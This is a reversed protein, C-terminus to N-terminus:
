QSYDWSTRVTSTNWALDTVTWEIYVYTSPSQWAPWTITITATTWSVNTVSVSWWQVSNDWSDKISINTFSEINKSFTMTNWTITAWRAMPSINEWARSATVTDITFNTSSDPGTGSANKARVSFTAWTVDGLWTATYTAVNGIDTRSWSNIKIEYSSAWAVATWTFTPDLNTINDTNNTGSDSGTTMDLSAPASAPAPIAWVNVRLTATDKLGNTWQIEYTCSAIWSFGNTPVFDIKWANITFTGGVQNSIVGTLTPAVWTTYTDNALVDIWTISTNYATSVVDNVADPISNRLRQEEEYKKAASNAWKLMTPNIDARLVNKEFTHKLSMNVNSIKDQYTIWATTHNGINKSASVFAKPSEFWKESFPISVWFKANYDWKHLDEWTYWVEFALDQTPYFSASVSATNDKFTDGYTTKAETKELSWALRTKMDNNFDTEIAAEIFDTNWTVKGFTWKVSNSVRWIELNTHTSDSITWTYWIAAWINTSKLDYKNWETWLRVGDLNLVWAWWKVYFEENVNVVWVWWILSHDKWKESKIEFQKWRIDLWVWSYSTSMVEKWVWYVSVLTDSKTKFSKVNTSSNNDIFNAAVGTELTNSSNSDNNSEVVSTIPSIDIIETVSTKTKEWVGPKEPSWKLIQELSPKEQTNDPLVQGSAVNAALGLGAILNAIKNTM